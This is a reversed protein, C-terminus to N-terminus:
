INTKVLATTNNEKKKLKGGAFVFLLQQGRRDDCSNFPIFAAILVDLKFMCADVDM